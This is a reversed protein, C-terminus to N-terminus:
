VTPVYLPPASSVLRELTTEIDHFQAPDIRVSNAITFPSLQRADDPCPQGLVKNAVAATVAQKPVSTLNYGSQQNFTRTAAMAASDAANQAQTKAVAVMGIDIALAVLGLVAVLSAAVLPIIAGRRVRRNEIRRM